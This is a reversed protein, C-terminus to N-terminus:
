NSEWQQLSHLFHRIEDDFDVVFFVIYWGGSGVVVANADVVCGGAGIAPTKGGDVVPHHYCRDDDDWPLRVIATLLM